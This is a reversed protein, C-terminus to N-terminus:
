LRLLASLATESLPSTCVRISVVVVTVVFNKDVPASMQVYRVVHDRIEAVTYRTRASTSYEM